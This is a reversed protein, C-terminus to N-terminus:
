LNMLRHSNLSSLKITVPECITLYYAHASYVKSPTLNCQSLPVLLSVERTTWHSLSWSGLINVHTKGYSAISCVNQGVWHMGKWCGPWSRRKEETEPCRRAGPSLRQGRREEASEDRSSRGLGVAATPVHSSEVGEAACVERGFELHM